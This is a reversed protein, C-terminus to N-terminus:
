IHFIGMMVSSTYKQSVMPGFGFTVRKLMIYFQSAALRTKSLLQFHHDNISM